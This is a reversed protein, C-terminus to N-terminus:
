ISLFGQANEMRFNIDQIFADINEYNNILLIDDEFEINYKTEIEMILKVFILSSIDYYQFPKDIDIDSLTMFNCIINIIEDKM